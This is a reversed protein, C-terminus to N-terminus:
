GPPTKSQNLANILQRLRGFQMRDFWLHLRPLHPTEGAKGQLPGSTTIRGQTVIDSFELNLMALQEEAFPAV